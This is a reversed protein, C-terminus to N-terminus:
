KMYYYLRNENNLSFIIDGYFEEDRIKKDILTVVKIEKEGVDFIFSYKSSKFLMVNNKIFKYNVINRIVNIVNDLSIDREYFRHKSHRTFIIQYGNLLIGEFKKNQFENCISHAVGHLENLEEDSNINNKKIFEILYSRLDAKLKDKM